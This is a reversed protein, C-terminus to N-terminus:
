PSQRALPMEIRRRQGRAPKPETNPTQQGAGTAELLREARALAKELDPHALPTGAAIWGRLVEIEFLEDAAVLAAGVLSASRGLESRTIQLDRTVLPHSHRYVTERVSALLIDGSQAITGTLVVLSPNLTNVLGAIVGGMLRGCRALLDASFSDGHQAAILVDTATIRDNEELALALDDSVGERAARLGEVAIANAGAQAELCGTNGCTCLATSTEATAIHGIMGAAGQAGAHPQGNSIVGAKIERGVDIVLLDKAGKGGGARFEGLATMQIRSRLCVSARYRVMLREVFPHNKWAPVNTLGPAGFVSSPAEEVPGPVAIAISWVDKSGCKLQELAWDFLTTLRQEIEAPELDRETAEHHEFLLRGSLDAVGVGLISQGFVAVLILGAKRRFRLLRPARGGSTPGLGGEEILGLDLLTTLREAVAARGLGAHREIDHRTCADRSRLLGVISALGHWAPDVRRTHRKNNGRSAPLDKM